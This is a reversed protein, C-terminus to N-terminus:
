MPCSICSPGSSFSDFSGQSGFCSAEWCSGGSVLLNDNFPNTPPQVQLGLQALWWGILRLLQWSLSGVVVLNYYVVAIIVGTVGLCFRRPSPHLDVRPMDLWLLGLALQLNARALFKRGVVFKFKCHELLVWYLQVGSFFNLRRWAPHCGLVLCTLATHKVSLWSTSSLLPGLLSWPMVKLGSTSCRRWRKPGIWRPYFNFSNCPKVAFWVWGERTKSAQCSAGPIMSQLQSNLFFFCNM